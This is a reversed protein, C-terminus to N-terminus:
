IFEMHIKTEQQEVMIIYSITAISLVLLITGIKRKM